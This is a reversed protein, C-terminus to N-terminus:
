TRAPAPTLRVVPIQRDTKKQYNAYDSWAAVLQPWLRARDEDSVTEATMTLVARRNEVTVEPNATLNLYWAPHKPFGGKSGVVILAGPHDPHDDEIFLLPSTRKLGSKRGTTTLLLMRVGAMRGGILGGTWRYLRIHTPPVTKLWLNLFPIM